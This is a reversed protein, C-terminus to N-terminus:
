DPDDRRKAGADRRSWVAPRRLRGDSHQLLEQEGRERVRRVGGQVPQGDPQRLACAWDGSTADLRGCLSAARRHASRRPHRPQARPRGRQGREADLCALLLAGGCPALSRPHRPQECLGRRRADWEHGPQSRRRLRPRRRMPNSLPNNMTARAVANPSTWQNYMKREGHQNNSRVHVPPNAYAMARSRPTLGPRRRGGGKPALATPHRRCACGAITCFMCGAGGDCEVCPPNGPNTNAMFPDDGEAPPLQAPQTPQYQYLPWNGNLAGQVTKFGPPQLPPDSYPGGGYVGYEAAREALPINRWDPLVAPMTERRAIPRVFSTYGAQIPGAFVYQPTSAREGGLPVGNDQMLVNQYGLGNFESQARMYTGLREQNVDPAAPFGRYYRMPDWQRKPYTGAWQYDLQGLMPRRQDVVYRAGTGMGAGWFANPDVWTSPHPANRAGFYFLPIPQNPDSV